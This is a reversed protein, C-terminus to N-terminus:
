HELNKRNSNNITNQRGQTYIFYLFFFDILRFFFCGPPDWFLRLSGRPRKTHCCFSCHARKVPGRGATILYSSTPPKWWDVALPRRFPSCLSKDCCLHFKLIKPNMGLCPLTIQCENADCHAGMWIIARRSLLDNKEVVAESLSSSAWISLSHNEQLVQNM